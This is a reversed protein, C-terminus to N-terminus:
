EEGDKELAEAKILSIARDIFLIGDLHDIEHQIAQAKFGEATLAFPKGTRDQASVEIIAAREVTGFLGPVSLCGENQCNQVGETRTIEPNILEILGDGVDVVAIRQSVGVQPAALGVGNADRMTEAMSDLLKKLAKDFKKVPLSKNRLVNDGATRILLKAM